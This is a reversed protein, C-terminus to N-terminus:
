TWLPFSRACNVVSGIEIDIDSTEYAFHTPEHLVFRKRFLLIGPPMAPGSTQSWVTCDIRTLPLGIATLGVVSRKPRRWRAAACCGSALGVPCRSTQAGGARPRGTWLARAGDNPNATGARRQARGKGPGRETAGARATAAAGQSGRGNDVVSVSREASRRHQDPSGRGNDRREAGRGDM